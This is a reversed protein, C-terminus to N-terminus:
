NHVFDILKEQTNFTKSFNEQSGLNVRVMVWTSM